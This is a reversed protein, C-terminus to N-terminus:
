PASRWTSSGSMRQNSVEALQRERLVQSDQLRNALDVGVDDDVAPQGASVAAVEAVVDVRAVAGLLERGTPPSQSAIGVVLSDYPWWRCSWLWLGGCYKMRSRALATERLPLMSSFTPGSPSPRISSGSTAIRSAIPSQSWRRRRSRRRSRGTAAASGTTPRRWAGLVVDQIQVHEIPRRIARSMTPPRALSGCDASNSDSPPAAGSSVERRLGRSRCISSGSAAGEASSLTM